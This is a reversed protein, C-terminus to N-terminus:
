EQTSSVDGGLGPDAGGRVPYEFEHEQSAPERAETAVEGVGVEDTRLRQNHDVLVHKNRVTRDRM